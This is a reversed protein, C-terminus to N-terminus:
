TKRKEPQRAIKLQGRVAQPSIGLEKAIVGDADKVGGLQAKRELLLARYKPRKAWPIRKGEPLNRAFACLDNFTQVSDFHESAGWLAHADEGRIAMVVWQSHPLDLLSAMGEGNNMSLTSDLDSVTFEDQLARRFRFLAASRGPSVGDPLPRRVPRSTFVSVVSPSFRYRYVGNITAEAEDTADPRDLGFVQHEILEIPQFEWALYMRIQSNADLRLLMDNLAEQVGLRETLAVWRLLDVLFVM